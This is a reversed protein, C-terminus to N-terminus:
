PRSARHNLQRAIDCLANLYLRRMTRPHLFVGSVRQVFYWNIRAYPRRLWDAVATVIRRDRIDPLWLFWESTEYFHDVAQSTAPLRPPLMDEHKGDNEVANSFVDQIERLTEPWFTKQGYIWGHERDTLRWLTDAWEIVRQEVRGPTWEEDQGGVKSVSHM